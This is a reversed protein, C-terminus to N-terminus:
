EEAQHAAEGNELEGLAAHIFRTWLRKTMPCFNHLGGTFAIRSARQSANM